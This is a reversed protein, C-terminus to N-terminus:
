KKICLYCKKKKKLMKILIPSIKYLPAAKSSAIIYRCNKTLKGAFSSVDVFIQSRIIQGVFYKSLIENDIECDRYYFTLGPLTWNILENFKEKSVM